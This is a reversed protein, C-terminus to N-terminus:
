NKSYWTKHLKHNPHCETSLNAVEEMRLYNKKQKTAFFQKRKVILYIIVLLSWIFSGFDIATIQGESLVLGVSGFYTRLM